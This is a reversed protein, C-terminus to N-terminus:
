KGSIVKWIHMISLVIFWFIYTIIGPIDKYIKCIDRTALHIDKIIM